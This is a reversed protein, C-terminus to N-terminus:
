VSGMYINYQPRNAMYSPGCMLIDLSNNANHYINDEHLVEDELDFSAFAEFASPSLYHIFSNFATHTAKTLKM